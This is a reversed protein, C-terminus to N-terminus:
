RTFLGLTEVHSTQPFMDYIGARALSFGAAQLVAADTAFTEPNCSVYIVTRVPAALWAALNPGAGSRPPDLLLLQPADDEAFLEGQAPDYLDAVSFKARIGLANRQANDRAREIATGALEYGEVRWGLRALPLSFNGIGCFLDGAREPTSAAVLACVDAVLRANIWANVQTFEIAAFRLSLGLQPLAYSLLPPPSGDLATVTAPGGPQLLLAFQPHAREFAQLLALDPASLADLHRVIIQAGDDGAALELQPIRERQSLSDILAALEPLAAGFAPDLTECRTLRAVRASFSERFGLALGSALRKVGLRAKRRYGLQPGAVPAAFTEAGVGAARLADRLQTEKFALQAPRALHQLACGGCRPFHACPPRRRDEHPRSVDHAEALLQGRRKRLIRATVAEGPLANKISVQRTGHTASGLGDATLGDVELLVETPRRSKRTAAQSPAQTSM